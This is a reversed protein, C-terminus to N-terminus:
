NNTLPNSFLWREGVCCCSVSKVMVHCSWVNVFLDSMYSTTSFITRSTKQLKNRLGTLREHTNPHDKVLETKMPCASLWNYNVFLSAPSSPYANLQKTHYTSTSIAGISVIQSNETHIYVKGAMEHSRVM